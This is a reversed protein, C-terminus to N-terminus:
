PAGEKATTAADLYRRAVDQQDIGCRYWVVGDDSEGQHTEADAIERICREAAELASLLALITAPNAAAIFAADRGSIENCSAVMGRDDGCWCTVDWYPEDDDTNSEQHAWPGPTAAKALALLRARDSPTM